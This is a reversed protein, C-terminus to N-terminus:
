WDQGLGSDNTRNDNAPNNLREILPDVVQETASLEGLASIAYGRVKSNAHDIYSLLKSAATKSGLRGLSLLLEAIFDTDKAKSLHSLLTKADKKQGLKGVSQAALVKVSPSDSSLAKILVPM